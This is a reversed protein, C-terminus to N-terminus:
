PGVAAPSWDILIDVIGASALRLSVTSTITILPVFASEYRGAYEAAGTTRTTGTSAISTSTVLGNDDGADGVIATVTGTLATVVRIRPEDRWVDEPFDTCSITTVFSDAVVATAGAPVSTSIVIEPLASGITIVAGSASDSSTVGQLIGSTRATQIAAELATAITTNTSATSDTLTGPAPASVSLSQPAIGAAYVITVVSGAASCSSVIGNLSTAILDTIAAAIGTAIATNAEAVRTFRARPRASLTTFVVDYNGATATGGVTVTDEHVVTSVTGYSAGNAASFIASYTGVAPTGGITLTSTQVSNAAAALFDDADLRKVYCLEPSMPYELVNAEAQRINEQNVAHGHHHGLHRKLM